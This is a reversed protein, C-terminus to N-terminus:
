KRGKKPKSEEEEKPLSEALGSLKARAGVCWQLAALAGVKWDESMNCKKVESIALRIADESPRRRAKKKEDSDDDDDDDEDADEDDEKKLGNLTLWADWQADHDADGKLIYTLFNFVSAKETGNKWAEVLRPDLKDILRMYNNVTAKSFGKSATDSEDTTAKLRSAIETAELRYTNRLHVFGSAIEYTTLQERQLNDVMGVIAADVQSAHVITAEITPRNLYEKSHALVRRGGAILAYPLPAGPEGPSIVRVVIPNILGEAKISAALRKLKEPNFDKRANDAPDMYIDSIAIERREKSNVVHSM